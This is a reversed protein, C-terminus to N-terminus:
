QYDYVPWFHKSNIFPLEKDSGIVTKYSRKGMITGLVDVVDDELFYDISDSSSQILLVDNSGYVALDNEEGTIETAIRVYWFPGDKIKQLIKGRVLILAGKKNNAYRALEEYEYNKYDKELDLYLEKLSEANNLLIKYAANTPDKELVISYEEIEQSLEEIKETQRFDEISPVDFGALLVFGILLPLIKKM